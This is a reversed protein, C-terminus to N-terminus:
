SSVDTSSDSRGRERTGTVHLKGCAMGSPFNGDEWKPAHLVRGLDAPVAVPAHARTCAILYPARAAAGAALLGAVRGFTSGQVAACVLCLAINDHTPFSTPLTVPLECPRTLPEPMDGIIHFTTVLLARYTTDSV